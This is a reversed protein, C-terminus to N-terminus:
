RCAAGSSSSLISFTRVVPLASRRALALLIGLPLSGVIGTFSIVLTVLLGGWLSTEVNRCALFCRSWCSFDLPGPFHRLVSDRQPAQVARVSDAAARAPGPRACLHRQGAVRESAPYFGYMFQDFKAAIFPWCAGVPRGATEALCATRDSGTWVADILLFRVDALDVRRPHGCQHHHPHHEARQRVAAPAALRVPGIMAAPPPEPAVLALRVYSPQAAITM